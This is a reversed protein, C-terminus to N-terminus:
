EMLKQEDFENDLRYNIEDYYIQEYLNFFKRVNEDDLSDIKNKNFVRYGDFDIGDKELMFTAYKNYIKESDIYFSDNIGFELKLNIPELLMNRGGLNLYKTNSLSLEYLTPFIDKHSGARAKDYFINNQYNKPVYIYFPVSFDNTLFDNSAKKVDRNKHDGTAAVITNLGLSSMKIDDLFKAFVDNSYAYVRSSSIIFENNKGDLNSLFKDDFEINSVFYDPIFFPPHNSTTLISIFTPKKANKLVDYAKKYIFEDPVGYANLMSKSQPYEKILTHMDYIVDVGLVKLYEDLNQWSANASTIFVVDYGAKKYIDFPTYPLKKYKKSSYALHPYPSLFYIGAFSPATGNHSSLFRTFVFDEKFHKRLGALFDHKDDDLMLFNVGFSEMLNFVVHPPNQELFDNKPTFKIINEDFLSKYKKNLLSADVSYFNSMKKYHKHAWVFALVPNAGIHNITALNSIKVDDEGLPFTSISGRTAVFYVLLFVVNLAIYTIKRLKIKEFINNILKLVFFGFTDFFICMFFMSFVPYDNFIIDFAAKTDDNILNFIFVDIKSKYAKFYYFELCAFACLVFLAFFAWFYYVKKFIKELGGGFKITKFILVIYFFLVCLSFAISSARLDYIFGNQYMKFIDNQYLSAETESIYASQMLLRMIFFMIVSYINLFVIGVLSM